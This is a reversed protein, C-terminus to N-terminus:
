RYSIMNNKTTRPEEFFLSGRLSRALRIIAGNIGFEAPVTTDGHVFEHAIVTTDYFELLDAGDVSCPLAIKHHLHGLSGRWVTVM